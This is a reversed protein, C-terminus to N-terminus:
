RRRRLLVGCAGVALLVLTAPEPAAVFAINGSDFQESSNIYTNTGAGTHEITLDFQIWLAFEKDANLNDFEAATVLLDDKLSLYYTAGVNSTAGFGDPRYNGYNGENLTLDFAVPPTDGADALYSVSFMETLTMSSYVDPIFDIDFLDIQLVATNPDVTEGPGLASSLNFTLLFKVFGASSGSDSLTVSDSVLGVTGGDGLVGSAAPSFPIYLEGGNGDLIANTGFVVAGTAPVATLLAFLSLSILLYLSKGSSHAV